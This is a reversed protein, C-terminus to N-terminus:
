EIGMQELEEKQLVDYNEKFPLNKMPIIWDPKIFYNCSTEALNVTSDIVPQYPRSNLSRWLKVYIGVSDIGSNAEIEDAILHAFRCVSKPTRCMKKFQRNTMYEDLKVFGISGEGPITVSMKMADVRDVLMLRWAFLNGYGHWSNNGSYLYQRLPFVVQWFLFLLLFCFSLKKKRESINKMSVSATELTKGKKKRFLNIFKQPSEPEFFLITAAIMFWPFVGITWLFHNSVHFFLLPILAWVRTKKYFLLFGIVLDFVLGAYGFFLPFFDGEPLSGIIPLDNQVPLWLKLPYGMLWDHEFKVIGGYFYVIVIEAKLIFVHWGPIKQETM